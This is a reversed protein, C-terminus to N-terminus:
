WLYEKFCPFLPIESVIRGGNPLYVRWGLWSCKFLLLPRRWAGWVVLFIWANRDTDVTLIQKWDKWPIGQLQIMAIVHCNWIYVMCVPFLGARWMTSFSVRKLPAYNSWFVDVSQKQTVKTSHQSDIYVPSGLLISMSLPLSNLSPKIWSGSSDSTSTSRM